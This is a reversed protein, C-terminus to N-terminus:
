GKIRTEGQSRLHVSTATKPGLADFLDAMPLLWDDQEDSKNAAILLATAASEIKELRVTELNSRSM